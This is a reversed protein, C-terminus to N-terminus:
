RTRRPGYSLGTVTMIIIVTIVGGPAHEGEGPRVQAQGAAEVHAEVHVGGGLEGVDPERPLQRASEPTLQGYGPICPSRRVRHQAPVLTWTQESWGPATM